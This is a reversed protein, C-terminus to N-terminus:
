DETGISLLMQPISLSSANEREGTWDFFGEVFERTAVPQWCSQVCSWSAVEGLLHATANPFPARDSSCSCHESAVIPLSPTSNHLADYFQGNGYNKGYVDVIKTGWLRDTTANAKGTVTYGKWAGTLPTVPDLTRLIKKFEVGAAITADSTAQECGIEAFLCVPTDSLVTESESAACPYTRLLRPLSM